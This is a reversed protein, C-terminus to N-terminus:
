HYALVNGRRLDNEIDPKKVRHRKTKLANKSNKHNNM